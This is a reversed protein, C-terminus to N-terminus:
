LHYDSNSLKTLAITGISTFNIPCHNHYFYELLATLWELIDFDGCRGVCVCVKAQEKVGQNAPGILM